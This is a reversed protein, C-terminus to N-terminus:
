VVAPMFCFLFVFVFVPTRPLYSFFFMHLTMELNPRPQSLPDSVTQPEGTIVALQTNGFGWVTRQM